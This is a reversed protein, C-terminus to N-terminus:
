KVKSMSQVYLAHTKANMYMVNNAPDSLINNDEVKEVYTIFHTTFPHIIRQYWKLPTSVKVPPVVVIRPSEYVQYGFLDQYRMTSM